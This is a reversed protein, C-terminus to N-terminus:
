RLFLILGNLASHLVTCSWVSGGNEYCLTLAASMPLYLVSLLLFRPDGFDWAYRWVMAVAYFLTVLIMAMPKSYERLQGYLFGRYMTEEVLPILLLVLTLTPGPALLYEQAYQMSIPDAVPFPLRCLLLRLGGAAVVGALIAYLNEPLWDVLGVLDRKLQSWFTFLALLFLVAYYAVNAEAMLLEGKEGEGMALGQFWANLRPFVFLYLLFLVMGRQRASPSLESKWNRRFM